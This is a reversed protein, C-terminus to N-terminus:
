ISSDTEGRFSWVCYICVNFDQTNYEFICSAVDKMRLCPSKQGMGCRVCVPASQSTNQMERAGWVLPRSKNRPINKSILRAVHCSEYIRRSAHTQAIQRASSKAWMVIRMPELCFENADSHSITISHTSAWNIWCNKMTRVSHFNVSATLETGKYSSTTTLKENQAKSLMPLNLALALEHLNYYM